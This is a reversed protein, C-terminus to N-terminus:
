GIRAGSSALEDLAAASTDEAIGRIADRLVTVTFGHRVADLATARVCYDTALGTVTVEDVGRERLLEALRANEFASYGAADREIGADIDRRCPRRRDRREVAGRVDRTRLARAM